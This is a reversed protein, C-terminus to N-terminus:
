RYSCYVLLQSVEKELNHLLVEDIDQDDNDDMTDDAASSEEAEYGTEEEEEEEAIEPEEPDMTSM